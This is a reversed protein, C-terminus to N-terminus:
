AQTSERRYRLRLVKRGIRRKYHQFVFAVCSQLIFGDLYKIRQLLQLRHRIGDRYDLTDQLCAMIQSRKSILEVTLEDLLGVFHWVRPAHAVQITPLDEGAHTACKQRTAADEFIELEMKFPLFSQVVPTFFSTDESM